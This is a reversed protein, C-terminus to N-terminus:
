KVGAINDLMGPFTQKELSRRAIWMKISGDPMNVYGNIHTGYSRCGFLGIASREIYLLPGNSGWVTFTEDRWGKLCGFASDKRWNALLNHLSDSRAKVTLNDLIELNPTLQFLSPSAKMIYNVTSLPVLGVKMGNIIFFIDSKTSNNAAQAIKLM